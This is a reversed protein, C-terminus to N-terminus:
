LVVLATQQEQISDVYRWPDMTRVVLDVNNGTSTFTITRTAPDWSYDREAILDTGAQRVYVQEVSGASDFESNLVFATTSGDGQLSQTNSRAKKTLAKSCLSEQKPATVM